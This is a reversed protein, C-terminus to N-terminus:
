DFTSIVECALTLRQGRRAARNGWCRVRGSRRHDRRPVRTRFRSSAVASNGAVGIAQRPAQRLSASNTPCLPCVSPRAAAAARDAARAVAAATRLPKSINATELPASKDRAPAAKGNRARSRRPQVIRRPPVSMTMSRKSSSCKKRRTSRCADGVRLKYRGHERAQQLQRAFHARTIIKRRQLSRDMASRRTGDWDLLRHDVPPARDDEFIVARGFPKARAM